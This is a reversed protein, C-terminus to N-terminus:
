GGRHEGAANVHAAARAVAAKAQILDELSPRCKDQGLAKQLHQHALLLARKAHFNHDESSAGLGSRRRKSM